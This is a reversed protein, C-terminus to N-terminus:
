DKHSAQWVKFADVFIQWTSKEKALAAQAENTLSVGGADNTESLRPRLSMANRHADLYLGAKIVLAEFEPPFEANATDTAWRTTVVDKANIEANHLDEESPAM